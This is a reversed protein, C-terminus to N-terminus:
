LGIFLLIENMKMVRFLNKVETETVVKIGAKEQYMKTAKPVNCDGIEYIVSLPPMKSFKGRHEDPKEIDVQLLM